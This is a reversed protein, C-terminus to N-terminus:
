SLAVVRLDWLKVRAGCVRRREWSLCAWRRTRYSSNWRQHGNASGASSAAGPSQRFDLARLDRPRRPAPRSSPSATCHLRPRVVQCTHAQLPTGAKGIPGPLSRRSRGYISRGDSVSRACALNLFPHTQSKKMLTLGNVVLRNGTIRVLCFSIPVQSVARHSWARMQLAWKGALPKSHHFRRRRDRCSRCPSM